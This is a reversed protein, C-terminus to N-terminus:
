PIIHIEVYVNAADCADVIPPLQDMSRCFIHLEDIATLYISSTDRIFYVPINYGAAYLEPLVTFGHPQLIFTAVSRTCFADEVFAIDTIPSVSIIGIVPHLKRQRSM